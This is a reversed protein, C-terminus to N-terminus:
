KFRTRMMRSSRNFWLRISKVMKRNSNAKGGHTSIQNTKIIRIVKIAKSDRTTRELKSITKIRTRGGAKVGAM